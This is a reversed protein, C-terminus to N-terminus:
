EAVEVGMNKLVDKLRKKENELLKIIEYVLEPTPHYEADYGHADNWIALWIDPVRKQSKLKLEEWNYKKQVWDLYHSLKQYEGLRENAIKLEDLNM